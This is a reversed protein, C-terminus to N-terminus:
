CNRTKKRDARPRVRALGYLDPIPVNYREMIALRKQPSDPADAVAPGFFGGPIAALCMWAALTAGPLHRRTM